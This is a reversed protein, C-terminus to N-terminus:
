RFTALIHDLLKSKVLLCPKGALGSESNHHTLGPPPLIPIAGIDSRIGIFVLRQRSQPSGRLAANVIGSTCKYGARKLKHILNRFQYTRGAFPVNEMAVAMPRLTEALRAFHGLHRNRPDRPRRHGNESFGQCPPCGLLIDVRGGALAALRDPRMPALDDVEYPARRYNSFYTEAAYPDHDILLSVRCGRWSRFPEISRATGAYLEVVHLRKGVM